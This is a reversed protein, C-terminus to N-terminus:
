RGRWIPRRKERHAQVGERFDESSYVRSVVDAFPIAALRAAEAARLRRFAEKAAWITLPANAGIQQAIELVRTFFRDEDFIATLFGAELAEAATLLRGTFLLERARMAGFAEVLRQCNQLSLCNGLTRAIPVGLRATPTAYRLDCATAIILGGGVAYGAIAAILPKPVSVLREILRDVREEYAIGEAGSFGQFQAIDTGAAFARQGAGRIVIVRVLEDAVLQDLCTALQDYMTWTMANHAAPRSLTLLAVHGTRELLVTGDEPSVSSPQAMSM